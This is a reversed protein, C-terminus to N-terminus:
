WVAVPFPTQGKCANKLWAARQGRRVKGMLLPNDWFPAHGSPTRSPTGLQVGTNLWTRTSFGAGAETCHSKAPICFQFAGQKQLHCFTPPCSSSYRNRAQGWVYCTESVGEVSSVSHRVFLVYWPASFVLIWVCVQTCVVSLKAGQIYM